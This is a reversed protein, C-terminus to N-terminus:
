RLPGEEKGTDEAAAREIARALREREKKIWQGESYNALFTEAFEVPDEGVIERIPTGVAASQEFLDILDDLMEMLIDGKTISGFYMLYRDLAEIATRYNGPLQKTRAKYQRYRKKDEFSGTVQEIWSPAM